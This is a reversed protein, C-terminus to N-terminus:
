YDYFPRVAEKQADEYSINIDRLEHDELNKLVQRTRRIEMWYSIKLSMDVVWKAVSPLEYRLEKSVQYREYVSLYTKM